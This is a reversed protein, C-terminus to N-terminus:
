RDAWGLRVSPVASNDGTGALLPAFVVNWVTPPSDSILEALVYAVRDVVRRAVNDPSWGSIPEATNRRRSGGKNNESDTPSRGSFPDAM